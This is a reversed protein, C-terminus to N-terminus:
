RLIAGPDLQDRLRRELRLAGPDLPTGLGRREPAGCEITAVADLRPLAPLLADTEAPDLGLEFRGSGSVRMARGVPIQPILDVTRSPPLIGSIREPTGEPSERDPEGERLEHHQMRDAVVRPAGDYRGVVRFAAEGHRRALWVCAPPSADLRLAHFKRLAAEADLNSNAFGISCRPLARLKLHLETAAFLRGRSGVFVRQLDFGAVSKVVRAGAKFKRGEALVGSLGLLLARPAAMALPGPADANGAGLAFSGGISGAENDCPLWLGRAALEEDLQCRLLGPQVSCTLDDPELRLIQAMGALSLLIVPDTPAPVRDQRTAHGALRVPPADAARAVFWDVLENASAISVRELVPFDLTDGLSAMSM